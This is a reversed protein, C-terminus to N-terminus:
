NTSRLEISTIISEKWEESYKNLYNEHGANPLLLLKKPGQLNKYIDDIEKRKVKLDKEGYILLVPVAIKLSYERPNHKFANFNNQIGGWVLLLDAFPFAPLNLNKFRNYVTEKMSGFPCELIVADPKLSNNDHLAKMIAAAGMSTGFLIIKEEGMEHLMKYAAAVNSAEHFGITVSNGSSRGCGFFDVLLTNYGLNNFEYAKDLMSSKEGGYGHFIAVTGKANHVPLYWSDLTDKDPIAISVYPVAPFTTNEPRPNNVGTLVISLKEFFSISGSDTTKQLHSNDFHTFKWAHM